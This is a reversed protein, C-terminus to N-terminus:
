YKPYNQETDWKKSWISITKWMTKQLSEKSSKNIWLSVARWNVRYIIIKQGAEFERAKFCKLSIGKWLDGLWPLFLGKRVHNGCGEQFEHIISGEIM